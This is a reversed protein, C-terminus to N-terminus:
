IFKKHWSELVNILQQLWNLATTCILRMVFPGIPGVGGKERGRGRDGEWSTKGAARASWPVRHWLLLFQTRIISWQKRSRKWGEPESIEFKYSLHFAFLSVRNRKNPANTCSAAESYVLRLFCLAFRNNANNHNIQRTAMFQWAPMYADFPSDKNVAPLIHTWRSLRRFLLTTLKLASLLTALSNM